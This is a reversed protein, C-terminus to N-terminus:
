INRLWNLMTRVGFGTGGKPIYSTTEKGAFAPGGLDMHAWPTEGVFENLFLSSTIADGWRGSDSNRLDAHEVKMLNLYDEYLPFRCVPEDAEAAANEIQKALKDDNAVLAAIDTGLAALTSGTLTALDLICDPKIKKEAYALADALTLRGEADTNTIEITKGNMATVIDDVRMAKGSPMNECAAVLGHVEADPELDSLVSFLGLVAAAGAMDSKMTLMAWTPKLSLGGSDFTVGKGVIAIKRKSKAPAYTLHLFYPPEDSGKAVALFAGMGLKECAARDLVKLKVNKDNKALREAHERLHSPTMSNGPENVLDRAYVTARAFLEGMGIGKEAARVLPADSEVIAFTAVKRKKLRKAEAPKFALYKYDALLAGETFAHAAAAPDLGYGMFQCSINAAEIRNACAVAKGAVRRLTEANWEKKEGLGFVIVRNAPLKGHTHLEFSEGVKGGFNEEAAVATLLGGLAKDAAKVVGSYTQSGSFVGLVLLDAKEELIKGQKAIINM